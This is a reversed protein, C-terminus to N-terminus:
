RITQRKTRPRGLNGHLERRPKPLVNEDRGRGVLNDERTLAASSITSFYLTGTGQTSKGKKGKRQKREGTRACEEHRSNDEGKVKRERGSSQQGLSGAELEREESDDSTPMVQPFDIGSSESSSGSFDGENGCRDGMGHSHSVFCADAPERDASNAWARTMKNERRTPTSINHKRVAETEKGVRTSTEGAVNSQLADETPLRFRAHDRQRSQDQQPTDSNGRDGTRPENNLRPPEYGTLKISGNKSIVRGEPASDTHRASALATPMYGLGVGADRLWPGPQTCALPPLGMSERISYVAIMVAPPLIITPTAAAVAELLLSQLARVQTIFCYRRCTVPQCIQSPPM